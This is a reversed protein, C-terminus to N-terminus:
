RQDNWQAQSYRETVLKHTRAKPWEMVAQRADFAIVVAQKLMDGRTRLNAVFAAHPRHGRYEPQRPPMQLLRSILDLDFDFLLTGHYLLHDRKCRLSNGSVKQGNVALDSTGMQTIGAAIPRLADAVLTLVHRHAENLMRLHERGAYRLVVAYM